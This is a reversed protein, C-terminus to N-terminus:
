PKSAQVECECILVKDAEGDLLVHRGRLQITMLLQQEEPSKWPEAGGNNDSEYEQGAAQVNATDYLLGM